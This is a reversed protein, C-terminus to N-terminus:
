HMLKITFCGPKLLDISREKLKTMALELDALAQLGLDHILVKNQEFLGHVICLGNEQLSRLAKSHADFSM